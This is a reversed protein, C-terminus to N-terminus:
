EKILVDELLGKATVRITHALSGRHMKEFVKLGEAKSYEEERHVRKEKCNMNYWRIFNQEYTDSNEYKFEEM